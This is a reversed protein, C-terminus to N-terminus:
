SILWPVTAVDRHWREESPPAIGLVSSHTFLLDLLRNESLEIRDLSQFVQLSLLHCQSADVHGAHRPRSRHWAGRGRHTPLCLDRSRGVLCRHVVTANRRKTRKSNGGRGSTRSKRRGNCSCSCRSCLVHPSYLVRAASKRLNALLLSVVAYRDESLSSPHQKCAPANLPLWRGGVLRSGPWLAQGLLLLCRSQVRPVPPSKWCRPFLSTTLRGATTQEPVHRLEPHTLGVSSFFSSNTKIQRTRTLLSKHRQLHM